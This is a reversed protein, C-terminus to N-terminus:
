GGRTKIIQRLDEHVGDLAHEDLGVKMRAAIGQLAETDPGALSEALRLGNKSEFFAADHTQAALDAAGLWQAFVFPTNHLLERLEHEASSARDISRPLPDTALHERLKDYSDAVAPSFSVSNLMDHIEDAVRRAIATDGRSLAVQLDVTRVGLRFALKNETASGARSTGAAPRVGVGRTTWGRADWGSNLPVMAVKQAGNAALPAQGFDTAFQTAFDASGGLTILRPLVVALVAAAAVPLAVKWQRWRRAASIPVVGPEPKPQDRLASAFLELADDSEALLRLARAREEGTLRGDILAALLELDEHKNVSNTEFEV